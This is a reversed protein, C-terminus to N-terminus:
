WTLGQEAVALRTHAAQGAPICESAPEVAPTDSQLGQGAEDPVHGLAVTVDPDPQAQTCRRRRPSKRCRRARRRGRRSTASRTPCM